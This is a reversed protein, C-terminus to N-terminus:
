LFCFGVRDNYKLDKAIPLQLYDLVNRRMIQIEKMTPVTQALRMTTLSQDRAAPNIYRDRVENIIATWQTEKGRTVSSHYLTVYDM